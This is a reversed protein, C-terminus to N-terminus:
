LPRHLFKFALPDSEAEMQELADKAADQITEDEHRLCRRLTREAAPGGIAGLARVAALQVQSDEDQLLPILFPVSDEEGIEAFANAAEYRMDPDKSNTETVLTTLWAPDCSRGMAYLASLRLKPNDSRYAWRILDKIRETNYCAAAELARRRVEIGEQENNVISLLLDKVREGDRALLNGTEAMLSFKGLAMAAAARVREDEDTRLLRMLPGVLSRDDYEWLGTLAKERVQPDLDGMCRKFIANFDLDANDEAVTVLWDMMMRRREPAVTPWWRIFTELEDNSLDSLTAFQAHKPPTNLQALEQLYTEITM